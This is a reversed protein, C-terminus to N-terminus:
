LEAHHFEDFFISYGAADLREALGRALARDEGAFSIALDYKAM